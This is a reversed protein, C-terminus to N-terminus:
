TRVLTYHTVAPSAEVGSVAYGTIADLLREGGGLLVPVVPVHVEDVLGARLYARITAAGGALRVDQGDAAEFAKALVAEIPEDTFHFVTGGDMALSPRPHHTHVFV